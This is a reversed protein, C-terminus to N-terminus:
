TSATDGAFYIEPATGANSEIFITAVAYQGALATHSRRHRLNGSAEAVVSVQGAGKQILLCNFGAPLANDITVTIAAANNCTIVMGNDSSVVEYTTGTQTNIKGEFGYLEFDGGDLGTTMTVDTTTAIDFGAKSFLTSFPTYRHLPTGGIDLEVYLIDSDVIDSAASLEHLYKNDSDAM